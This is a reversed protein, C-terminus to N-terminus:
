PIWEPCRALSPTGCTPRPGFTLYGPVWPCGVNTPSSRKSTSTQAERRSVLTGSALPRTRSSAMPAAHKSPPLDGSLRIRSRRGATARGCAIPRLGDQAEIIARWRDHERIVAFATGRREAFV